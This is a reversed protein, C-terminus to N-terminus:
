IDFLKGRPGQRIEPKSALWSLLIHAFCTKPKNAKIWFKCGGQLDRSWRTGPSGGYRGQVEEKEQVRGEILEEPSGGENTSGPETSRPASKKQVSDAKNRPQLYAWPRACSTQSTGLKGTKLIRELSAERGTPGRKSGEQNRALKPPDVLNLQRHKPATSAARGSRNFSSYLICLFMRLEWSIWRQYGPVAEALWTLFEFLLYNPSRSSCVPM